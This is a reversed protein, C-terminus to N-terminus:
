NGPKHERGEGGFDEGVEGVVILVRVKGGGWKNGCWVGGIAWDFKGAM